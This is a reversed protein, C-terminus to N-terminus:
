RASRRLRRIKEQIEDLMDALAPSRKAYKNPNSHKAYKNPNSNSLVRHLNRVEQMAAMGQRLLAADHTREGMLRLTRALSIQTETWALLDRNRRRVELAARFAEVAERLRRTGSEREGLVRLADGLNSQTEAWDRPDRARTREELAARLVAVAESPLQTSNQREGLVRLASGLNNQTEAWDRPFRTRSREELAARFAAVAQELRITGSEREGLKWLAYGLSNQRAAWVLPMSARNGGWDLLRSMEVAEELLETGDEGMTLWKLANDRARLFASHTLDFALSRYRKYLSYDWREVEAYALSYKEVARNHDFALIATEAERAFTAAVEVHRAALQAETEKLQRSVDMARASARARYDQALPLSGEAEARDALDTLRVIEPDIREIADRKALLEKVKQAGARLQKDLEDPGAATDVQLAKLMGYLTDLPLGDAKALQEVTLRLDQPLASITLLLERRGATLRAEDGDGDEMKGGFYLLRTLTENVWPRQRGQTKLYVEETVMRMVTGFETGNMASLHRTIAAAYPSSGGQPGDLAPQGPAAAFSIVTGLTTTVPQNELVSAGRTVLNLGSALVPVAESATDRKLTAGPPFPNTRCADLFMLAVPVTQKLRDILPSLAVLRKGAEGLAAEDADVPILWNEGGAEIGHGSYYIAAVDTGEADSVFNEMDRRLRRADLDNLTTVAFGLDAFLRAMDQADRAPNTLPTLHEYKTQGIILAVGKLPKAMDALVDVVLAIALGLFALIGVLTKRGVGM